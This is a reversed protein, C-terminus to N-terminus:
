NGAYILIRRGSNKIIRQGQAAMRQWRLFGSRDVGINSSINSGTVKLLCGHLNKGLFIFQTKSFASFIVFIYLQHEFFLIYIEMYMQTAELHLLWIKVM